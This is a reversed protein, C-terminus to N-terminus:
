QGLRQRYAKQRCADSCYHSDSRAPQFVAFCGRCTISRRYQRKCRRRWRQQCRNSCAVVKARYLSPLLLPQECACCVDPKTGAAQEAPTACASCVAVWETTFICIGNPLEEAILHEHVMIV